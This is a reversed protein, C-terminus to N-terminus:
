RRDTAKLNRLVFDEDSLNLIRPPNRGFGTWTILLPFIPWESFPDDIYDVLVDGSGDVIRLERPAGGKCGQLTTSKGALLLVVARREPANNAAWTSTTLCRSLNSALFEQFLAGTAMWTELKGRCSDTPVITITETRTEGGGNPVGGIVDVERFGAALMLKAASAAPWLLTRMVLVDPYSSVPGRKDLRALCNTHERDLASAEILRTAFLFFPLLATMLLALGFAIRRRRFFKICLYVLSFVAATLLLSPIFLGLVVLSFGPSSCLAQAGGPRDLFGRSLRLRTMRSYIRTRLRSHFSLLNQWPRRIAPM